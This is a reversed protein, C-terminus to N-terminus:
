SGAPSVEFCYSSDMPQIVLGEVRSNRAVWFLYARGTGDVASAWANMKKKLASGCEPALFLVNGTHWATDVRM